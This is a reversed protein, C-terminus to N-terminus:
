VRRQSSLPPSARSRTGPASRPCVCTSPSRQEEYNFLTALVKRVIRDCRTGAFAFAEVPPSDVAGAMSERLLGRARFYRTRVTAEPIGLAAATEAVSLEEVARLVFVARYPDPLADIHTELLRRTARRQAIADPGPEASALDDPEVDAPPMAQRANRRRRMLAENATIRILWTSLKSEGRFSGLMRYAQLYAEQVADEAEADDRLIARATRYLTRNHARMLAELARMNGSLIRAILDNDAPREVPALAGQTQM